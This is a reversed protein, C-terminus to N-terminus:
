AKLIIFYPFNLNRFIISFSIVWTLYLRRDWMWINRAHKYTHIYIYPPTFAHYLNHFKLPYFLHQFLHPCYSVPLMTTSLFSSLPPLTTLPKFLPPPCSFRLSGNFVCRRSLIMLCGLVAIQFNLKLLFNFSLIWPLHLWWSASLRGRLMKSNPTLNRVQPNPSVCDNLTSHKNAYYRGKITEIVAM